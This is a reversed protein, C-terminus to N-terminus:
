QQTQFIMSLIIAFQHQFATILVLLSLFFEWFLAKTMTSWCRALKRYITYQKKIKKESNLLSDKYDAFGCFV